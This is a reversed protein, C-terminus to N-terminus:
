GLLSVTPYKGFGLQIQHTLKPFYEFVKCYVNRETKRNPVTEIPPRHPRKVPTENTLRMSVTRWALTQLLCCAIYRIPRNLACVRHIFM